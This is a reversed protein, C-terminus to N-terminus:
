TLFTKRCFDYIYKYELILIRLFFLWHNFQSLQEISGRFQLEKYSPQLWTWLKILIIAFRLKQKHISTLRSTSQPHYMRFVITQCVNIVVFVSRMIRKSAIKSSLAKLSNSKPSQLFLTLSLKYNRPRSPDEGSESRFSRVAEWDQDVEGAVRVNPGVACNRDRSGGRSWRVDWMTVCMAMKGWVCVCVSLHVCEGMLECIIWKSGFVGLLFQGVLSKSNHAIRGLLSITWRKTQWLVFCVERVWRRWKGYVYLCVFLHEDVWMSHGKVM